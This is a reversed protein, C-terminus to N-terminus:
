RRSVTPTAGRDPVHYGGFSLGAIAREAADPSAQYRVEIFPIITRVARRICTRSPTRALRIIAGGPQDSVYMDPMVVIM